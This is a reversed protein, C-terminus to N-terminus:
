GTDLLSTKDLSKSVGAVMFYMYRYLRPLFFQPPKAEKLGMSKESNGFYTESAIEFVARKNAHLFLLIIKPLQQDESM